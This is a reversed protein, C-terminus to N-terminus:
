LIYCAIYSLSGLRSVSKSTTRTSRLSYTTITCRGRHAFTSFFTVLVAAPFCKEAHEKQREHTSTSIAPKHELQISDGVQRM